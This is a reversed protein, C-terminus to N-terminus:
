WIVAGESAQASMDLNGRRRVQEQVVQPRTRQTMMSVWPRMLMGARTAVRRLRLSRAWPRLFLMRDFCCMIHAHICHSLARCRYVSVPIHLKAWLLLDYLIEEGPTVFAAGTEAALYLRHLFNGWTATVEPEPISYYRFVLIIDQLMDRQDGDLLAHLGSNVIDAWFTNWVAEPLARVAELSTPLFIQM